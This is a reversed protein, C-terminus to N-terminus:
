PCQADLSSRQPDGRRQAARCVAVRKADPVPRHWDATVKQDESEGLIVIPTDASVQMRKVFEPPAYVISPYLILEESIM